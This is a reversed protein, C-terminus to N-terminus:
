TVSAIRARCEHTACSDCFDFESEFQHIEGAGAVLVGSVSKLPHMLCSSNLTIGIREPRLFAFLRRQGTVHWGCYGPSYGLVRTDPDVQESRILTDLFHRGLLTAATDARESAIGDLMSALAPDNAAFLDSIEQSLANGLTV